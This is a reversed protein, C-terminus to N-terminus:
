SRRVVIDSMEVSFALLKRLEDRYIKYYYFFDNDLINFPTLAITVNWSNIALLFNLLQRQSYIKVTTFDISKM